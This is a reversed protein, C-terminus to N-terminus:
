SALNKNTKYNVDDHLNRDNSLHDDLYLVLTSRRILETPRRDSRILARGAFDSFGNKKFLFWIVYLPITYVGNNFVLSKFNLM